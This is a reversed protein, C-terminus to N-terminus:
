ESATSAVGAKRVTLFLMLGTEEIAIQAEYQGPAHRLAPAALALLEERTRYRLPWDALHDMMTMADHHTFNGIVLLGGPKLFSLLATVLKSGVDHPLYDFLGVAYFIDYSGIQQQLSATEKLILKVAVNFYDLSVADPVGGEARLQQHRRTCFDLADLDQDLLSISLTQGPKLPKAFLDVLEQGPGCALSAMRVQPKTQALVEEHLLRVLFPIRNYGARVVPLNLYFRNLIRGMLTPAEDDQRYIRHMLLYDGAYGCPKEFSRAFLPSLLWYHNLMTKGFRAAQENTEADRGEMADQMRKISLALTPGTLAVLQDLEQDLHHEINQVWVHAELCEALTRLILAHQAIAAQYDHPVKDQMILTQLKDWEGTFSAPWNQKPASPPKPHFRISDHEAGLQVHDAGHHRNKSSTPHAQSM